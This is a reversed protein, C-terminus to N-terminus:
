WKEFLLKECYRNYDFIFGPTREGSEHITDTYCWVNQLPEVITLDSFYEKTLIM